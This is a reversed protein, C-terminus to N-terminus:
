RYNTAIDSLSTSGGGAQPPAQTVTGRQPANLSPPPEATRSTPEGGAGSIREIFSNIRRASDQQDAQKIFQLGLPINGARLAQAGLDRYNANGSALQDGLEGIQNRERNQVFTDGIGSLMSFFDPAAM